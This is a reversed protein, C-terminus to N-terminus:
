LLIVIDIKTLHQTFLNTQRIKEQNKKKKTTVFHLTM